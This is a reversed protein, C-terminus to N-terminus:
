GDGSSGLVAHDESWEVVVKRSSILWQGKTNQEYSDEYRIYMVTNMGAKLHHAVCYIEGTAQSHDVGYSSQGLLHFTRDYRGLREAITRLETSGSMEHADGGSMVILTADPAFLETFQDPNRRDAASAYRVSLDRLQASTTATLRPSSM